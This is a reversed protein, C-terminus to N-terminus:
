LNDAQRQIESYTISEIHASKEENFYSTNENKIYSNLDM